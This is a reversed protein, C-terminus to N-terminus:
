LESALSWARLVPDHGPQMAGPVSTGAVEGTKDLRFHKVALPDGGERTLSTVGIECVRFRQGPMLLVEDRPAAEPPHFIDFRLGRVPGAMVSPSHLCLMRNNPPDGMGLERQVAEQSRCTSLAGGILWEGGERLVSELHPLTESPLALHYRAQPDALGLGPLRAAAALARGQLQAIESLLAGCAVMLDADLWRLHELTRLAIAAGSEPHALLRLALWEPVRLAQPAQRLRWRGAELRVDTPLDEVGILPLLCEPTSAAVLAARTRVHRGPDAALLHLLTRAEGFLRRTWEDDLIPAEEAFQSPAYARLLTAGASVMAQVHGASALRRRVLDRLPDEPPLPQAISLHRLRDAQPALSEALASLSLAREGRRDQLAAARLGETAADLHTEVARLMDSASTAYRAPERALNGINNSRVALTQIRRIAHM